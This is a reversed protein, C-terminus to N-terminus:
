AAADCSECVFKTKNKAKTKTMKAENWLEVYPVRFDGDLLAACHLSFRGGEEIYHTMKQGTEKGSPQGYGVIDIRDRANKVAWEKSHYGGRSVKGFHHQWLHTMEHVLTSLVKSTTRHKFHSPNLAIEDTVMIGDATGFREGAFYGYSVGKRQMTILCYPLTGDFLRSNFYAYAENMAAYQTDTPNNKNM